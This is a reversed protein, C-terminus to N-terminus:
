WRESLSAARNKEWFARAAEALRKRGDPTNWHSYDTGDPLIRDTELIGKLAAYVVEAVAHVRSRERGQGSLTRTLRADSAMATLLPEM